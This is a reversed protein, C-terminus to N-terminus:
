ATRQVRGDREPQHHPLVSRRHAAPRASLSQAFPGSSISLAAPSAGGGGLAHAGASTVAVLHVNQSESVAVAHIALISTNVPDLLASNHLKRAQERLTTHSAARVFDTGHAGLWFAHIASHETLAYLLERTPDHVLSIIADDAGVSLFTPVFASLFSATRNM